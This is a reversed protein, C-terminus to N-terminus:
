SLEKGKKAQVGGEREGPKKQTGKSLKGARGGAGMASKLM